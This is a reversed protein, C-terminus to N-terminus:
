DPRTVSIKAARLSPAAESKFLMRVQYPHENTSWDRECKVRPDLLHYVTGFNEPLGEVHFQRDLGLAICPLNPLVPNDAPVCDLLLPGYYLKSFGADSLSGEVPMRGSRLSFTYEIVDGPHLETKVIVFGNKTSSKVLHGNIRVQPRSIWTPAFFHLKPSFNLTNTLVTFQVSNGFPYETQEKIQLRGRSKFDAGITADNFHVFYLGEPVQLCIAQAVRPLVEGGRMTCCWHGEQFFLTLFPTGAGSCKQGGFGGNARQEFALANYYIRDALDLYASEGTLRWLDFAMQYSDMTGCGETWEPREFWNYCEYNETMCRQQYLRFRERVAKLLSPDGTIQYYRLMGRMGVLSAHAQGKVAVLDIQLFRGIMEDIVPKLEERHTVAYAQVVGDLFIFDCLTDGSIVWPGIRGAKSGIVGGGLPHQSPDIPYQRHLGQTPLVLNDVVRNIWELCRADHKWLYYECLGRLVWGHSALQQEDAVGNTMLNGFYGQANVKAPLRRLIEDLFKPTRHTAEADLTLGLITRGETDGPWNFSQELTLFVHDPQYKEEELRNFNRELRTGLEGQVQIQEFVVPEPAVHHTGDAAAGSLCSLLLLGISPYLNLRM